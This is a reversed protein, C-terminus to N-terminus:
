PTEYATEYLIGIYDGESLGDVEVLANDIDISVADQKTGNVVVQVPQTSSDPTTYDSLVPKYPLSIYDTGGTPNAVHSCIYLPNDTIAYFVPTENEQWGQVDATFAIGHPTKDSVTPVIQYGYTGASQFNPAGSLGKPSIWARPIFTNMYLDAGKSGTEKSQFRYNMLLWSQPPTSRMVNESFITWRTNTSQDVKAGSTFAIMTADVVSLTLEFTGLSTIGYVYSGTWIDGGTFDVVTRDPMQFEGSQAYRIVYGPLSTGPDVGEGATGYNLGDVGVIGTVVRYLGHADGVKVQAM